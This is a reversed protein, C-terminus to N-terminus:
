TKGNVATEKGNAILNIVDDINDFDYDGTIGSKHYTVGRRENRELCELLFEAGHKKAFITFAKPKIKSLIGKGCTEANECEYCHSVGKQAACKRVECWDKGTCGDALCGVCTENESCLCCALGCRAIGLEKKM